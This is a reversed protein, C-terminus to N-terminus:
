VIVGDNDVSATDPSHGRDPLLEESEAEENQAARLQAIQESMTTMQQRIDKVHEHLQDVLGAWM